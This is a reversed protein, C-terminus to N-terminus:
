RGFNLNRPSVEFALAQDPVFQTGGSSTGPRMFLTTDKGRLSKKGVQFRLTVKVKRIRLLDADFRNGTTSDPCWPGDTLNEQKLKVLPGTGLSPMTSKAVHNGDVLDFLCNGADSKPKPGYNTWPGKPDTLPKVLAPAAPEGFYEFALGVVNDAIPLDAEYGDYRMLQYNEAVTDTKLWYTYSAIETINAGQAYPKSLDTGKHQLHLADTQVNTVTFLDYTGTDDFILVQMGQKFGCLPDSNPCGPQQNVKIESSNQPMPQRITTQAMTPPVYMVTITDSGELDECFDTTCKFTGPPDSTLNGERHPLISAMYNGLTGVKTGSYTGAGAMMLDKQLAEVGIRVRQQMDSIEPQAQFFGQAPDMLGFVAATVTVMIATAILMELITFGRENNERPAGVPVGVRSGRQPGRGARRRVSTPGWESWESRRKLCASTITTM